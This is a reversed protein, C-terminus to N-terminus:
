MLVYYFKKSDHPIHTKQRENTSNLKSKQRDLIM